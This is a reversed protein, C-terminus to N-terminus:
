HVVGLESIFHKARPRPDRWFDKPPRHNTQECFEELGATVEVISYDWDEQQQRSAAVNTEIFDRAPSWGNFDFASAGDSIYVHDGFTNGNKPRIHMIKYNESSSEEKFAFALIHCAGSAFFATDSREWSVRQDQREEPTRMLAVAPIIAANM